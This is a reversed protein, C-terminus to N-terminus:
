GAAPNVAASRRGVVRSLRVAPQDVWREFAAAAFLTAGVVAFLACALALRRDFAAAASYVASGLTLMIPWHLLYISFSLRGLWAPMRSALLRQAAPMLLVAGYILLAGLESVFHFFSFPQVVSGGMVLHELRDHGPLRNGSEAVFIGGLLLAMAVPTVWPCQVLRRFGDRRILSASLMGIVFLDLANGGILVVCGALGAAYGWRSRSKAWTLLILLVSGWLELHLSWLPPDNTARETWLWPALGGFLTTTSYGTVMTAGSMDALAHLPDGPTMSALWASGSHRAAEQFEGPITTLLVLAFMSAAALPVGLRIVRRMASEVVATPAREFSFALVFGSMLFFLFVAVDGDWLFRPGADYIGPGFAMIGHMLVVQLAALGRLGDLYTLRTM